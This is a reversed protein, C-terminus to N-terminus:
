CGNLASQENLAREEPLGVVGYGACIPRAFDIGPQPRRKIGSQSPAFQSIRIVGEAGRAPFRGAVSLVQLDLPRSREVSRVDPRGPLQLSVPTVVIREDILTVQSVFREYWGEVPGVPSILGVAEEVTLHALDQTNAKLTEAHRALRMYHQATRPSIGCQDRLWPLWQGHKLQNSERAEILM